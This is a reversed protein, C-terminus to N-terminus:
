KISGWFILLSILFFFGYFVYLWENLSYTFIQFLGYGSSIISIVSLLPIYKVAFIIGIISIIAPFYWEYELTKTSQTQTENTNFDTIRIIHEENIRINYLNYYGNTTVNNFVLNNDVYITTTNNFYDLDWEWKIHSIGTSNTINFATTPYICLLILMLFIIYRM